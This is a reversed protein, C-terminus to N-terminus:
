SASTPFFSLLCSPLFFSLFSVVLWGVLSEGSVEFTSTVDSVDVDFPESGLGMRLQSRAAAASPAPRLGSSPALAFGEAGLIALSACAVAASVKM